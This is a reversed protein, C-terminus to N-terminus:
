NKIAVVDFLHWFKPPGLVTPGKAQQERFHLIEFGSFLEDFKSKTIFIADSMYNWEDNIGFLNGAFLGDPRIANVIRAWFNDFFEPKCFPISFVSYVMDCEPIIFDEFSSKVCTVKESLDTPLKSYINEFGDDCADVALVSWGASVLKVTDVGSGCGLEVAFGKFDGSLELAKNVLWRPPSDLTLKTFEHWNTNEDM